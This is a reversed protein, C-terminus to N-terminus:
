LEDLGNTGTIYFIKRKENHNHDEKSPKELLADMWIVQGHFEDNKIEQHWYRDENPRDIRLKQEDQEISTEM